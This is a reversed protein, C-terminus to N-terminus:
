MGFVTIHQGAPATAASEFLKEEWPRDRRDFLVLFGQKEGLRDLYGGLQEVGEQLTRDSRRVKLELAHRAGRWAVLLDARGSGLAFERQISGGGNVIRQLFAMLMLHPGAEQYDFRGLWAESQEAFFRQFARLLAAMDLSGDPRLYWATQHPLVSQMLYTLARPILEQYIPNAIRVSPRDVILGLDRAYVLDDNMVDMSPFVGVLIPEIVRRVRPERLREALSDLHTDRRLLLRERAQQVHEAGLPRTRDPVLEDVMERALANVLWPQGQTLEYVLDVAAPEFVQGTDATHQGYLTAVEDRTFNQLTLSADKINFPSSTNLRDSGGSAAKYDRVDRMGCLALSWPFEEPRRGFGARLQRLVSVLMDDRLADIEDLFVVLPRPCARAWAALAAGIRQGRPADPWPPPHLEPPLQYRIDERWDGLVALEAADPDQPRGAGVEMTVLIAAYRGERTLEQALTFLATSKGVQRPARLVFYAKRDILRRVNPLRQLPPLMYHDVPNCRGSINFFRSM